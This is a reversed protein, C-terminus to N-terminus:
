PQGYHPYCLLLSLLVAPQQSYLLAVDDYLRREYLLRANQSAILMAGNLIFYKNSAPAYSRSHDVTFLMKTAMEFLMCICAMWAVLFYSSQSANLCCVYTM